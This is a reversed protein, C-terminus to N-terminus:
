QARFLLQTSRLGLGQALPTDCVTRSNRLESGFLFRYQLFLGGGALRRRELRYHPREHPDIRDLVAPDLELRDVRTALDATLRAGAWATISWLYDWPRVHEPAAHVVRTADRATDVRWGTASIDAYAFDAGTAEVLRAVLEGLRAGNAARQAMLEGPPLGSDLAGGPLAAFHGADAVLALDMRGAEFAPVGAENAPDHLDLSFRLPGLDYLPLREETVLMEAYRRSPPMPRGGPLTAGALAELWPLRGAAREELLGLHRTVPLGDDTFGALFRAVGARWDTGPPLSVVADKIRGVLTLPMIEIIACAGAPRAFVSQPARRSTPPDTRERARWGGM